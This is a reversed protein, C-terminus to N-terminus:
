GADGPKPDHKVVEIGMVKLAAIFNQEIREQEDSPLLWTADDFHLFAGPGIEVCPQTGGVYGYEVGVTIQRGSELYAMSFRGTSKVVYGSVHRVTQKNLWEFESKDTM